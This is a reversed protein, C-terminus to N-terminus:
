QPPYYWFRKVKGDEFEYVVISSQSKPKGDELWVPREIATLYNGNVAVNELSSSVDPYAQFYAVLEDHLVQANDTVISSGAGTVEVWTVDDTWYERMKDADHANFAAMLSNVADVHAGSAAQPEAREADPSCAAAFLALACILIRMFKEKHPGM